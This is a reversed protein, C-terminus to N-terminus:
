NRLVSIANDNSNTNNVTVIDPVGDGDLDAIAVGSPGPATAFSVAPAFSNSTILGTTGINKLVAISSSEFDATVIDPKGDGNLDRVAVNRGGGTPVLFSVPTGFSNSAINGPTCFNQLVVVTGNTAGSSICAIIDQK